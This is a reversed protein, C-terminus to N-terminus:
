VKGTEYVIEEVRKLKEKFKEKEIEEILKELRKEIRLKARIIKHAREFIEKYKNLNKNDMKEEIDYNNRTDILIYNIKKSELIAITRPLREQPFGCTPINKEVFKIKCSFLYSIIYADKGFVNYFKGVKFCVIFKPHVEKIIQAMKVVGM